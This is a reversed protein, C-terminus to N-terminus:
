GAAHGFWRGSVTRDGDADRVYVLDTGYPGSVSLRLAGTEADILGHGSLALGATFACAHLTLGYGADTTTYRIWGGRACGYRLPDVGDWIAYDGANVIEDDTASLAALATHYQGVHRKPVPVYPDVHEPACTTRRADPRTGDVLFATILDDPCANGRGFIVHPGGPQVVLYGDSLRGFIRLAGPYPTAPDTNSALVFVPFPTSTLPAPRAHTPPHVPWTACPLDGYFVSGLRVGAVGAERGAELYHAVSESRSGFRYDYDMCEVAYYMADSYTPDIVPKLTEPDQGIGLYALRALQLLQGHSAQALARQFLMRDYNGYVWEVAATELDALGFERSIRHGGDTVFTFPESHHRLQAAVRDYARVADGGAIDRRCEAAATCERLTRLLVSQFARADESFYQFGTRTLDVPGDLILSRVHDPHAAAYTQVYQTGYSEGYLDLKAVGLWQRFAELDEVSQATSYFPLDARDVGTEAVCDHSFRKAAAAFATAQDRDVTAVASTSYFRVAANPCALGESQGIGRQDFFVLDYNEALAPAFFDTYPDAAALGSTGPGGTATVFVGTRHGSSARHIAFTVDFTASSGPDFHDRPVRLRVCTFISDPCPQQSLVRVGAPTRGTAASTAGLAASSGATLNQEPGPLAKDAIPASIPTAAAAGPVGGLAVVVVSAIALFRRVGFRVPQCRMSRSAVVGSGGHLM